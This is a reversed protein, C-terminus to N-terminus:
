DVDAGEDDREREGGRDSHDEADPRRAARRYEVRDFRKPVFLAGPVRPRVALELGTICATVWVAGAAFGAIVDSLYHVGLYLRSWGVLLVLVITAILVIARHRHAPPWLEFLVYALMAFGILSGMSHGSPYSFSIGHLFREAGVPRPRRIMNKLMWDLFAGVVFAALWVSVMLWAGRRALIMGVVLALITMMLPGGIFSIAIAVQDGFPTAHARMWAHFSLDVATLAENHVVDETISGFLWLASASILFGVTLHLGLYEGRAFRAAVFSRLRTVLRVHSSEAPGTV